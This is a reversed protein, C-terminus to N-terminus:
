PAAGLTSIVACGGYGGTMTEEGNRVSSVLGLSKRSLGYDHALGERDKFSYRVEHETLEYRVTHAGTDDRRAHALKGSQPDIFLLFHDGTYDITCELVVAGNDALLSPAQMGLALILSALMSNDETKEPHGQSELQTAGRLPTSKFM